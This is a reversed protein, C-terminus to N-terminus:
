MTADYEEGVLAKALLLPDVGARLLDVYAEAQDDDLCLPHVPLLWGGDDTPLVAGYVVEGPVTCRSVAGNVAVVEEGNVLDVLTLAQGPETATVEWLRHTAGNWRALLAVESPSLLPVFTATFQELLGRDLLVLSEMVPLRLAHLLRDEQEEGAAELDTVAQTAALFRGAQPLRHLGLAAKKWLWHAESAAARAGDGAEVEDLLHLMERGVSTLYVGPSRRCAMVDGRVFALYAAADAAPAFRADRELAAGYHAGARGIEGRWEAIAGLLFWAGATDHGSEIAGEVFAEVRGVSGESAHLGLPGTAFAWAVEPDALAAPADPAYAADLYHIALEALRRGSPLSLDHEYALEAAYSDITSV